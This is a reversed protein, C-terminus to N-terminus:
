STIEDGRFHPNDISMSCNISNTDDDDITYTINLAQQGRHDHIESVSQCINKLNGNLFYSKDLLVEDNGINAKNDSNVIKVIYKKENIKIRAIQLEIDKDDISQIFYEIRDKINPMSYLIALKELKSPRWFMAKFKYGMVKFLYEQDYKLIDDQMAKLFIARDHESLMMHIEKIMSSNGYQFLIQLLQINGAAADIIASLKGVKEEITASALISSFPTDTADNKANLADDFNTESIKRSQLSYHLQKIFMSILSKDKSNFIYHLSTHNNVYKKKLWKDTITYSIDYPNKILAFIESCEVIDDKIGFKLGGKIANCFTNKIDSVYGDNQKPLVYDSFHSSQHQFYLASAHQCIKNVENQANVAQQALDFLIDYEGDKYRARAKSLLNEAVQVAIDCSLKLQNQTTNYIEAYVYDEFSLKFGLENLTPIGIKNQELYSAILNHKACVKYDNFYGSVNRGLYSVGVNWYKGLRWCGSVDDIMKSLEEPNSFVERVINAFSGNKGTTLFLTELILLNDIGLLLAKIQQEKSGNSTAIQDVITLRSDPNNGFLEFLQFKQIKGKRILQSVRLSIANITEAKPSQSSIVSQFITDHNESFHVIQDFSLAEIIDKYTYDVVYDMYPIYSEDTHHHYVDYISGGKSIHSFLIKVYEDPPDNLYEHRNAIEDIVDFTRSISQFSGGLMKYNLYVYNASLCLTAGIGPLMVAGLALSIGFSHTWIFNGLEDIIRKGQYVHIGMNAADAVIQALWIHEMASPPALLPVIRIGAIMAKQANKLDLKGQEFSSELLLYTTSGFEIVGTVTYILKIVSQNKDKNEEKDKNNQNITTRKNTEEQNHNNENGVTITNGGEQNNSGPTIEKKNHITSSTAYNKDVELLNNQNSERLEGLGGLIKLNEQAPNQLLKQINQQFEEASDDKDNAFNILNQIVFYGCDQVYHDNKIEQIYKAHLHTNVKIGTNINIFKQYVYFIFEQLEKNNSMDNLPRSEYFHLDVNTSSDVKTAKLALGIWHGKLVLPQLCSCNNELETGLTSSLKGNDDLNWSQGLFEESDLSLALKVNANDKFREKLCVDITEDGIGGGDHGSRVTKQEGNVLHSTIDRWLSKSDNYSQVANTEPQTTIGNEQLNEQSNQLHIPKIINSNYKEEEKKQSMELDKTIKTVTPESLSNSPSNMLTLTDEISTQKDNMSDISNTISIKGTPIDKDHDNNIQINNLNKSDYDTAKTVYTPSLFTSDANIQFWNKTFFHAINRQENQILISVLRKNNDYAEEKIGESACKHTDECRENCEKNNTLHITVFNQSKENYYFNYGKFQNTTKRPLNYNTYSLFSKRVLIRYLYVKFIDNTPATPQIIEGKDLKAEEIENEIAISKQFKYINSVNEDNVDDNTEKNKNKKLENGILAGFFIYQSLKWWSHPSKWRGSM